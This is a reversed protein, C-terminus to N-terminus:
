PRGRERLTGPASEPPASTEWLRAMKASDAESGLVAQLLTPGIRADDDLTMYDGKAYKALTLFADRTQAYFNEQAAASGKGGLTIMNGATATRVHVATFHRGSAALKLAEHQANLLGTSRPPADGVMVLVRRASGRWKLSAAARLGREPQEPADHRGAGDLGPEIGILNLFPALRQPDDTFQIIEVPKRAGEDRYAVVAIRLRPLAADLAATLHQAQQRLQRIPGQMSLTADLVLALDVREARLKLIHRGFTAARGDNDSPPGLHDPMATAIIADVDIGAINPLAPECAIASESPTHPLGSAQPFSQPIAVANLPWDTVMAPPPAPPLSLRVPPEPPAPPRPSSGLFIQAVAVLLMIVIGVTLAIFVWHVTRVFAIGAQGTTMGPCHRRSPRVSTSRHDAM